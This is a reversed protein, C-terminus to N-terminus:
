IQLSLPTWRKIYTPLTIVPRVTSCCCCCSSSGASRLLRRHSFYELIYTRRMCCKSHGSIVCGKYFPAGGMM